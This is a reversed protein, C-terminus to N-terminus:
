LLFAEFRDIIEQDVCVVLAVSVIRYSNNAECWARIENIRDNTM